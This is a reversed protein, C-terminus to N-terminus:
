QSARGCARCYRGNDAPKHHHDTRPCVGRFRLADAPFVDDIIRGFGYQEPLAEFDAPMWRETTFRVPVVGQLEERDYCALAVRALDSARAWQHVRTALARDRAAVWITRNDFLEVIFVHILLTDAQRMEYIDALTLYKSPKRTPNWALTKTM